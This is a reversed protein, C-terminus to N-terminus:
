GLFKVVLDALRAPQDEPIFTRSGEVLELRADPLLEALRRANAVSFLREDAAWVLLVPRDFGPLQEAAQLTYRRHVGRVFRVVDRRVGRDHRSPALYSEVIRPPVPQHVVLGFGLPSRQMRKSRMSQVMLWGFGPLRSAKPLLSFPWPFFENFTDCSTLVVRGLREPHRTMLLQTIAGGTDNAVLTTDALDLAALFDAVLRAVGPPSLDTGPRLPHRHSGLPWDPTLCRYGAEAVAPVVARWLDGNVLLGHVFVVPPGDGYERYVLPGAPLEVTHETGLTASIAM